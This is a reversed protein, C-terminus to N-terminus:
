SHGTSISEIGSTTIEAYAVIIDLHLKIVSGDEFFVVVKYAHTETYAYLGRGGESPRGCVIYEVYYGAVDNKGKGDFHVYVRGDHHVNQLFRGNDIASVFAKAVVTVKLYGPIIWSSYVAEDYDSVPVGQALVEASPIVLPMVISLVVVIATLIAKREM